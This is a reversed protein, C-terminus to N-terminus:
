SSTAGLSFEVITGRKVFFAEGDCGGEEMRWGVDGFISYFMDSTVRVDDRFAFRMVGGDFTLMGIVDKHDHGRLIPVGTM